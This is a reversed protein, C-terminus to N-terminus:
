AAAPRAHLHAPPTPPFSRAYSLARALIIERGQRAIPPPMPKHPSAIEIAPFVRGALHRALILIMPNPNAIILRLSELRRAYRIGDNPKSAPPKDTPARPTAAPPQPAARSQSTSCARDARRRPPLRPTESRPRPRHDRRPRRRAGAGPTNGHAPAPAPSAAHTAISAAMTARPQPAPSDRAEAAARMLAAGEETCVLMAIAEAMLLARVLYELPAIMINMERRERVALTAIRAFRAPSGLFDMLQEIRQRARAWLSPGDPRQRKLVLDARFQTDM